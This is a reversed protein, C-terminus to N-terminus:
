SGLYGKKAWHQRVYAFEEPAKSLVFNRLVWRDLAFSLRDVWTRTRRTEVDRALREAAQEIRPRLAEPSTKKPFGSRAFVFGSLRTHCVDQLGLLRKNTGAGGAMGVSSIALTYKDELLLPFGARYTIREYFRKYLATTLGNRVPSAVVFGDAARMREIVGDVGDRLPCAGTRLCQFCGLCDRLEVDALHLREVQAGRRELASAAIELAGASFGAKNPSGNIALIKM